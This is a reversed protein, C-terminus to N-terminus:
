GHVCDLENGGEVMGVAPLSLFLSSSSPRVPTLDLPTVANPKSRLRPVFPTDRSNDIENMFSEQPKPIDQVNQVMTYYNKPGNRAASAVHKLKNCM